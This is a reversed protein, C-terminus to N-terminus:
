LVGFYKVCTKAHRRTVARPRRSLIWELLRCAPQNFPHSQSRPEDLRRYSVSQISGRAEYRAQCEFNSAALQRLSYLLCQSCYTPICQCPCPGSMQHHHFPFGYLNSQAENHAVPPDNIVRFPVGQSYSVTILSVSAAVRPSYHAFPLQSVLGIVYSTLIGYELAYLILSDLVANLRVSSQDAINLVLLVSTDESQISGNSSRLYGACSFCVSSM